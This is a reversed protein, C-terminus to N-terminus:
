VGKKANYNGEGARRKERVHYSRVLLVRCVDLSNRATKKHQKMRDLTSDCMEIWEDHTM